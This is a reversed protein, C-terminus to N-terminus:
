EPRAGPTLTLQKAAGGRVLSVAVPKGVVEPGLAMLLAEGDTVPKGDLTLLIDGVLLGGQEAPGGPEIGLLMLGTQQRLGLRQRLAAQLEVAQSSVGLYGRRVIGRVRLAGVLRELAEGPIAMAEGGALHSSNLGVVRGRVDILPGGSFGPPLALDARVYGEVLGGRATRWPGGIASAVGFSVMLSGDGPRGLALVVHGPKVSGGPALEAPDPAAVALRLVAVDSGPDWGALAAPVQRGDVLTVRIDLQRQLVHAATVVSDGGPWVIGSAPLGRRGHVTVVARGARDVAGALEDSLAVLLGSPAEVAAM